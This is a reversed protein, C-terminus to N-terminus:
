IGKLQCSDLNKDFVGKDTFCKALFSTTQMYNTETNVTRSNNSDVECPKNIACDDIGSSSDNVTTNMVGIIEKTKDDFVPSGSSGPLISCKLRRSTPFSFPGELISVEDGLTCLSQRLTIEKLGSMPIGINEIKTGSKPTTKALKYATIEKERLEQFTVGDLEILAVDTESMSAYPVNKVKYNKRAINQPFDFYYSFIMVSPSTENFVAKDSPLFGQKGLCHGNTILYAPSAAVKTETDVLSATCGSLRGVGNMRKHAEKYYSPKIWNVEQSNAETDSLKNGDCDFIAELNSTSGNKTFCVEETTTNERLQNEKDTNQLEGCSCLLIFIFSLFIRKEQFM